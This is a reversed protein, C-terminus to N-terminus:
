LLELIEVVTNAKIDQHNGSLLFSDGTSTGGNFSHNLVLRRTTADDSCELVYRKWLETGTIAARWNEEDFVPEWFIPRRWVLTGGVTVRVWVGLRDLGLYKPVFMFGNGSITFGDSSGPNLVWLYPVARDSRLNQAATITITAILSGLHSHAVWEPGAAGAALRDGVDGITYGPVYNLPSLPQYIDLSNNGVKVYLARVGRFRWVITSANISYESNNRGALADDFSLIDLGNMRVKYGSFARALTASSVGDMSIELNNNATFQRVETIYYTTPGIQFEFRPDIAGGIYEGTGGVAPVRGGVFAPISAISDVGGLESRILLEANDLKNAPIQDTNGEEAWNYVGARVVAAVRSIDLKSAPILAASSRRAWTEVDIESLDIAVQYTGSTDASFLFQSHTDDSRAIFYQVGGSTWEVANASSLAQTHRQAPKALLASLDFRQATGNVTVILEADPDTAPVLPTGTIPQALTAAANQITVPTVTRISRTRRLAAEFEGLGVVTSNAEIQAKVQQATLGGAPANTLKGAPIAAANGAEAWDAVGAAVRADVQAQTLGRGTPGAVTITVTTGVRAAVVGAGVFDLKEVTNVTGLDSGEDAVTIGPISLTADNGGASALSLDRGNIEFSGVQAAAQLTERDSDSLHPTGGTPLSLTITSGDALTLIVDDGEVRAGVVPNGAAGAAAAAAAAATIIGARRTRWAALLSEAGSNRWVAPYALAAGGADAGPGDYVYGCFLITAEDKVADPAGESYRAIFAAAVETLATLEATIAADPATTDDGQIRLRYALQPITLAM